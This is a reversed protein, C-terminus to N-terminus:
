NDNSIDLYYSVDPLENKKICNNKKNPHFHYNNNNDCILCNHSTSNSYENCKSCSFYCPSYISNQSDFYYNTPVQERLLCQNLYNAVKFYSINDCRTCDNYFQGRCEKCSSHCDGIVGTLESIYYSNSPKTICISTNMYITYNANEEKCSSIKSDESVAPFKEFKKLTSDTEKFCFDNIQIYKIATSQSCSICNMQTVYIKGNLDSFQTIFSSACDSCHPHCIKQPNKPIKFTTEYKDINKPAFTCYYFKKLNSNVSFSITQDCNVNSNSFTTISKGDNISYLSNNIQLVLGISFTGQEMISSTNFTIKIIDDFLYSINGIIITSSTDWSLPINKLSDEHIIQLNSVIGELILNLTINTNPSNLLSNKSLGIQISILFVIIPSAINRNKKM